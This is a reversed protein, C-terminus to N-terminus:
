KEAETRTKEAKVQGYVERLQANEEELRAIKEGHERILRQARTFNAELNVNARELRAYGLAVEGFALPREEPPFEDLFRKAVEGEAIDGISVQPIGESAIARRATREDRLAEARVPELVRVLAQEFAESPREGREELPLRPSLDKPYLDGVECGLGAALKMVSSSSPTRRGTEIQSVASPTLGSREALQAGTLRMEERRRRIETGIM